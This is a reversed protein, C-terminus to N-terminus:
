RSMKLLDQLTDSLPSIVSVNISSLILIPQPTSLDSVSIGLWGTREKNGEKERGSTSHSGVSKIQIFPVGNSAIVPRVAGEDPLPKRPNEEATLFIGPSRHVAGLIMENGGKDNTVVHSVRCEPCTVM